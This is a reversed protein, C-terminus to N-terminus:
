REPGALPKAQLWLLLYLAAVAATDVLFLFRLARWYGSFPGRGLTRLLELLLTPLATVHGPQFLAWVGRGLGAMPGGGVLLQLAFAVFGHLLVAFAALGLIALQLRCTRRFVFGFLALFVLCGLGGFLWYSMLALPAAQLFARLHPLVRALSLTILLLQAVVSAAMCALFPRGWGPLEVPELLRRHVAEPTM